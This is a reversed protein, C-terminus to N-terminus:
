YKSKPNQCNKRSYVTTLMFRSKLSSLVKLDCYWTHLTLKRLTQELTVEPSGQRVARRHVLAGEQFEWSIGQKIKGQPKKKKEKIKQDHVLGQPIKTERVLSQVKVGQVCRRSATIVPDCSLGETACKM